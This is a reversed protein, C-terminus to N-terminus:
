NAKISIYIHIHTYSILSYLSLEWFAHSHFTFQASDGCIKCYWLIHKVIRSIRDDQLMFEFVIRNPNSDKKKCTIRRVHFFMVLLFRRHKNYAFVYNWGNVCKPENLICLCGNDCPSRSWCGFTWVRIPGRMELGRVNQPMCKFLGYYRSLWICTLATTFVSFLTFVSFSHFPDSFPTFFFPAGPTLLSVSSISYFLPLFLLFLHFLHCSM